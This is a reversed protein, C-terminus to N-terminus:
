PKETELWMDDLQWNGFDDIGKTAWAKLRPSSAFFEPVHFLPILRNESLISTEANFVAELTSPDFGPMESLRLSSLIDNLALAAIPSYVPLRVVRLDVVASQPNPKISVPAERADLAIRSAINGAAPDSADYALFLEPSALSTKASPPRGKKESKPSVLFAYGSLKPPLLTFAKEGQKQLFNHLAARDVALSIAERIKPDESYGRGREFALAILIHPTSSWVKAEKPIRHIENPWVEVLDAKGFELDTLQEKLARGMEVIVGDLFPRGSWHRENASLIIRRNAETQLLQFPGTGFAKQDAGRLFISHSTRALEFLLDPEPADSEILLDDGAVSIKWGPTSIRLAEATLDPTLDSGDHFTVGSRLHFRWRMNQSDHQWSLALSAQPQNNEDLRTLREFVLSILKEKLLGDGASSRDAPDLSRIREHTEVRLYGGYRPRGAAENLQCGLWLSAAALFQCIFRQM